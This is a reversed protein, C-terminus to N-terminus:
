FCWRLEVLLRWHSCWSVETTGWRRPGRTETAKSNTSNTCSKSNNNTSSQQQKHQQKEHPARAAEKASGKSAKEQTAATQHEKNHAAKMDHTSKQKRSSKSQNVSLQVGSAAKSRGIHRLVIRCNILGRFTLFLNKCGSFIM